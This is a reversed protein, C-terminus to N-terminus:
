DCHATAQVAERRAPQRSFKEARRSLFVSNRMWSPKWRRGRCLNKRNEGLADRAAKLDATNELAELETLDEILSMVRKARAGSLTELKSIAETLQVKSM